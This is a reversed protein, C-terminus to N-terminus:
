KKNSKINNKRLDDINFVKMPCYAVTLSTSGKWTAGKAVVGIKRGAGPYLSTFMMNSPTVYSKGVGIIGISLYPYTNEGMLKDKATKLWAPDEAVAEMLRRRVAGHLNHENITKLVAKLVLERQKSEGFRFMNESLLNKM